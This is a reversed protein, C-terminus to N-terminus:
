NTRLYRLMEKKVNALRYKSVPLSIGSALDLECYRICRVFALNVLITRHCFVFPPAPLINALESLRMNIELMGNALTLRVGRNWAEAYMIDTLFIRSQGDSTKLLIEKKALHTRSCFLLAERMLKLDIPKSLYRSAAVMYGQMAMERNSSIFIIAADDEQGRIAAALQMGDMQDMMVDLLLIHFQMGGQMASLLAAADAYCSIACDINEEQLIGETVNRIEQRDAQEDDCIAIHLRFRLTNQM